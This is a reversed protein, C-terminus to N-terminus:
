VVRCHENSTDKRGDGPPHIYGSVLATGDGQLALGQPVFGEDRTPVWVAACAADDNPPFSSLPPPAGLVPGLVDNPEIGECTGETDDLVDDCGGDAPWDVGGDEDDDEGNDCEM